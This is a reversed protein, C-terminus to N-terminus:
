VQDKKRVSIELGKKRETWDKRESVKNRPEYQKIKILKNKPKNQGNPKKNRMYSM